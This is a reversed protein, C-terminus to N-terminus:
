IFPLITPPTSGISIPPKTRKNALKRRLETDNFAGVYLKGSLNAIQNLLKRPNNQKDYIHIRTITAASKESR